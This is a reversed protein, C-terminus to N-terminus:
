EAASPAPHRQAVEGASAFSVVVRAGSPGHHPDEFAVTGHHARVIERVIALGLGSGGRARSRADDLRTFREFIRERDAPYIGPGDDEIALEVIGDHAVIEIRIASAAYREANEFLNQMVRDLEIADGDVRGGAVATLDVSVRGRSRVARVQELLIEDLDVARHQLRLRGEDARALVLLNEVLSGIRDHQDHLSASFAPWNTKDPHALAVELQTRINALPSRLEHAADAVFSREHTRAAELRDLMRNMTRALRAIEDATAPEPIRRDLADSEIADVERRITEVPQLTTGVMWWALLGVLLMLAPVGAALIAIVTNISDNTPELSGGVFLVLTGAPTSVRRGLIRYGAGDGMPPHQVTRLTDNTRVDAIPALPTNGRIGNSQAVVRGGADVAQAVTDDDVGGALRDPLDGHEAAAVVDDARLAIEGDVNSVMTHHLIGVLAFAGIVLVAGVVAVAAVTTRVRVTSLWRRRLRDSM